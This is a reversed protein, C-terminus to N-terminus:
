VCSFAGIFMFNPGSMSTANITGKMIEHRCSGADGATSSLDDGATCGDVASRMGAGTGASLM